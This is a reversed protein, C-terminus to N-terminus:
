ASLVSHFYERCHEQKNSEGGAHAGVLHAFYGGGEDQNAGIVLHHDFGIVVGLDIAHGTVHRAGLGATHHAGDPQRFILRPM